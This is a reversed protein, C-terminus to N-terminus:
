AKIAATLNVFASGVRLCVNYIEYLATRPLGM